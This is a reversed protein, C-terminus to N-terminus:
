RQQQNQKEKKQEKITNIQVIILCSAISRWWFNQDTKFKGKRECMECRLCTKTQRCRKSKLSLIGNLKAHSRTVIWTLATMMEGCLSNSRVARCFTAARFSYLNLPGVKTNFWNVNTGQRMRIERQLTAISFVM